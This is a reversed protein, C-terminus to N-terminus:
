TGENMSITRYISSICEGSVIELLAERTLGAPLVGVERDAEENLLYVFYEDDEDFRNKVGELMKDPIGDFIMIDCESLYRERNQDSMESCGRTNHFWTNITDSNEENLTTIAVPADGGMFLWIFVDYHDEDTSELRLCLFSGWDKNWNELVGPALSYEWCHEDVFEAWNPSPEQDRDEQNIAVIDYGMAKAHELFNMFNARGWEKCVVAREGNPLTVPASVNFRKELKGQEVSSSGDIKKVVGLSGQLADPFSGLLEEFNPKNSSVWDSVVKHVIGRKSFGEEGARLAYKTLDRGM